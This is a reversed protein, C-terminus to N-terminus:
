NATVEKSLAGGPPERRMLRRPEVAPATRTTMLHVFARMSRRTRLKYHSKQRKRFERNEREAHNSTREANEFDLHRFLRQFARDDDLAGLIRVAGPVEQFEAERLLASRRAAADDHTTAHCLEHLAVVLRRLVRLPPCLSMAADLLAQQPADLVRKFTLYRCRRVTGIAARKAKDARPRGRKKPRGRGRKKPQPMSAIAAHWARSLTENAGQLFHFVCLQHAADPFIEELVAPYLSSGDTVILSPQFGFARLDLLLDAVDDATPSGEGMRALLEIRNVPDTVRIVYYTGDYVEDIAMQGSFANLASRLHAQLDVAEGDARHWRMVTTDALDDLHLLERALAAASTFSMKYTRVLRVVADRTGSTYACRREFGPPVLRFWRQGAPCAPCLYCGVRVAVRQVGEVSAQKRVFRRVENRKARAGCRPCATWM